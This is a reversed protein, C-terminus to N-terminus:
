DYKLWHACFPLRGIAPPIDNLILCNVFVRKHSVGVVGLVWCVLRLGAVEQPV